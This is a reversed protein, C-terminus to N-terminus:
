HTDAGLLRDHRRHERRLLVMRRERQEGLLPDLRLVLDHQAAHQRAVAARAAEDVVRRHPRPQQPPDRRQQHLHLALVVLHAEGIRGSVNQQEVGVAHRRRQAIRRHGTMARPAVRRRRQRFRLGRDRRRLAVLVPQAVRDVVKRVKGGRSPFLLRQRRFTLKQLLVLLPRLREGGRKGFQRRAVAAAAAGGDAQAGGSARQLADGAAAITRNGWHERQEFLRFRRQRLRLRQEPPERVLRIGVRSQQLARFLPQERQASGRSFVVHRDGLQRVQEGRQAAAERRQLRALRRDGIQL